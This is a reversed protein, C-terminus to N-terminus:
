NIITSILLAETLMVDVLVTEADAVFNLPLEINLLVVYELKRTVPIVLALSDPLTHDKIPM